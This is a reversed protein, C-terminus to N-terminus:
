CCKLRIIAKVGLSMKEFEKLIKWFAIIMDSKHCHTYLAPHRITASRSELRLETIHSVCGTGLM